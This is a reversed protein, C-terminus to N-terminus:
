RLSAGMTMALGVTKQRSSAIEGTSNIANM